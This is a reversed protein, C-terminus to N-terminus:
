SGQRSFFAEAAIAMPTVCFFNWFSATLLNLAATSHQPTVFVSWFASADILLAIGAGLFM